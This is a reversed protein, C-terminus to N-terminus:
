IKDLRATQKSQFESLAQEARVLAEAAANGM